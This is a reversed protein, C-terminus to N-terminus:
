SVDRYKEAVALEFGHHDSNLPAQRFESRCRYCITIQKVILYLVGDIAAASLLVFVGIYFTRPNAALIIFAVAAFIVLGLGTKQPFDKRIFLDRCACKPCATLCSKSDTQAPQTM